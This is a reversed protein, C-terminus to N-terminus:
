GESLSADWWSLLFFELGIHRMSSFVPNFEGKIPWCARICVKGVITKIWQVEIICYELPIKEQDPFKM